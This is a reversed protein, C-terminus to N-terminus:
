ASEIDLEEESDDVADAVLEHQIESAEVLELLRLSLRRFVHLRVVWIKAKLLTM